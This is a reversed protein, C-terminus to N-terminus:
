HSGLLSVPLSLPPNSVRSVHQSRHLSRLRSFPPSGRSKVATLHASTLSSVIAADHAKVNASHETPCLAARKSAALAPGVAAPFNALWQTPGAAFAPALASGNTRGVTPQVALGLTSKVAPYVTIKKSANNASCQAPSFVPGVAAVLPVISPQKSPQLSPQM